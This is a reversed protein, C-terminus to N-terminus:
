APGSAPLTITFAAGRGPGDSAATIRGGHAQVLARAIALGIGSGGRARDRATDARYFREFVHPLAEATIGEGTDTVTIRVGSTGSRGGPETTVRVRGGPPTHRLANDLLNGLVQGIRDADVEVASMGPSAHATLGVGKAAYRAGAAEVAAAMLAEPAVPAPDLDLAAEEARSVAGVDEVLRRLRATQQAFLAMEAPTPQVVGDALAEHYAELTALPTRMEHALDALLRRRTTETAALRGALANFTDALTEFEPGLGPAAVRSGYRGDALEGAARALATVPRTVRRALVVSVAFAAGLAILLALSLSTQVATGFAERAHHAAAAGGAEVQRLHSDFIRPGLLATVLILSSAFLGLVLVQAALLRTAPGGIGRGSRIARWRRM